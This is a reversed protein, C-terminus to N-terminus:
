FNAHVHRACSWNLASSPLAPAGGGSTTLTTMPEISPTFAASYMASMCTSYATSSRPMPKESAGAGRRTSRRTNRWGAAQHPHM